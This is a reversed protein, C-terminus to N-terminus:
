ACIFVPIARDTRAQYDAYPPYHEVCVPWVAAKEEAYVERATLKMRRNRVMVEIDPHAVLNYYWTPHRPAGGLSAVIIVGERYPVYMVPMWRQQGSRAGTMKVLCISCGSFTNMLRGGSLRYVWANLRAFLKVNRRIRRHEKATMPNEAM